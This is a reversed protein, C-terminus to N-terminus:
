YGYESKTLIVGKEVKGIDLPLKFKITGDDNFKCDPSEWKYFAYGYDWLPLSQIFWEKNLKREELMCSIASSNLSIRSTERTRLLAGIGGDSIILDLYSLRPYWRFHALDQSSFDVITNDNHTHYFALPIPGLFLAKIFKDFGPPTRDESGVFLKGLKIENQRSNWYITQSRERNDNLSSTYTKLMPATIYDPLFFSEPFDKISPIKTGENGIISLYKEVTSVLRDKETDSTIIETKNEGM